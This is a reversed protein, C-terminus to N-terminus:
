LFKMWIQSNKLDYKIKRIKLLLDNIFQFDVNNPLKSSKFLEDMIKIKEEAEHILKDFDYEGKRISLLQDRNSRRVNIGKGEGIEIAMDLLRHCHALNKGDYGKGHSVNDNYRQPNRKNVWEWYELYLRCYCEYGSNNYSIICVPKEGKPISSLRITNSPFTGDETEKMIGQYGLGMPKSSLQKKVKNRKRKEDNIRNSFTNHSDWDYFLCYNNPANPVNVLGCFKKDMGNQELWKPLEITRFGALSSKYGRKIGLNRLGGYFLDGLKKRIRSDKNDIVYCFNLPTKKEKEIPNVIKKKLGRAKKIQEVAYGGFSNKCVKSILKDKNDIIIDFIPDKYLICDQPLALLELLNPNNQQILQLFRRIEYYTTDNKEDNVQEVYNFNLIDDLPQIFVGKIDVDSTPTAIGYAQSGVIGEFIILNKDKLDQITM